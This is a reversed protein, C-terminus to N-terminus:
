DSKELQPFRDFYQDVVVDLITTFNLLDAFWLPSLM